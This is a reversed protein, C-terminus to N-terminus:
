ATVLQKALVPTGQTRKLVGDLTRFPVAMIEDTLSYRQARMTQVLNPLSYYDQRQVDFLQLDIKARQCEMVLPQGTGRIKYFYVTPDSDQKKALKQYTTVFDPHRNEEGDSVIAIGDIEFGKDLCYQVGCGISTSSGMTVRKTLAKLEEFTKGTADFYQPHSDFFILHVQGKVMRSLVASIEVAAPIADGMSPSRDGLVLWNGDIGKLADLQKEQLVRLKGSLAEDDIAEAARTTKLTAAPKKGKQNAAEALKAELAARLAPVTKVGVKELWKMNTVLQTPTMRAILAVVVDPDKAKVGLAGRAILDPIRYKQITGAIEEPSMTQLAALARFPGPPLELKIKKGDVDTAQGFIVAKEYTIDTPTKAGGPPVDYLSYLRHLTRRHQLATRNWEHTDKELDLLYRHVLRKVMRTPVKIDKAFELARVFERPGLIAMHALANDALEPDTAGLLAIVPLAVQADRVQGKNHNWAVLHGFFEPDSQVAKVGIPLYEAFHGHPSKALEAIVRRRDLTTDAVIM